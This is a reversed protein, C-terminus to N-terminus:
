AGKWRTVLSGDPLVEDAFGGLTFSQEVVANRITLKGETIAAFTDGQADYFTMSYSTFRSFRQFTGEATQQGVEMGYVPAGAPLPDAEGAYFLVGTRIYGATELLRTELDTVIQQLSSYKQDIKAATATIESDTKEAYSGFESVSLYQGELKKEIKQSYAEVIDASKIILGKLAAFDAAASGTKEEAAGPPVAQAQPTQRTLAATNNLQEVLQYLYSKLQHLQDKETLGTINPYRFGSM